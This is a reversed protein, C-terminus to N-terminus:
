KPTMESLFFPLHNPWNIMNGQFNLPNKLSAGWKKNPSFQFSLILIWFTIPTQGLEWQLDIDGHARWEIKRCKWRNSQVSPRLHLTQLGLNYTATSVLSWTSNHSFVSSECGKELNMSELIRQANTYGHVSEKNIWGTIIFQFSSHLCLLIVRWPISVIGGRFFLYFALNIMDISSITALFQRRVIYAFIFWLCWM